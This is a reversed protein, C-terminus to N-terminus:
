EMVVALHKLAVTSMPQGLLTTAELEPHRTRSKVMQLLSDVEFPLLELEDEESHLLESEDDQCHLLESEKDEFHLQFRLLELEDDRSQEL